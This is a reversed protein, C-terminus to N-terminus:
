NIFNLTKFRKKVWNLQYEPFPAIIPVPHLYNNPNVIKKENFSSGVRMEDEDLYVECHDGLISGTWAAAPGTGFVAIKQYNFKSNIVFNYFNELWHVANNMLSYGINSNPLDSINKKNKIIVTLEKSIVCNDILIPYLDIKRLLYSFSSKTFHHIHDAIMLDFPGDVVYPVQIILIGEKSLINKIYSIVEFVDEIHEFVHFLTILDFTNNQKPRKNFVEKINNPWDSIKSLPKDNPEFGFINSSNFAESLALLGAGNGSGFDLINKPKIDITEKVFQLVRSTRGLSSGNELFNKQDSTTSSQDFMSYNNYIGNFKKQFDKKIIRTALGCNKCINISRGDHWPRCDSTVTNLPFIKQIPKTTVGDCFKCPLTSM